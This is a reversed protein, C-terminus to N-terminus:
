KVIKNEINKQSGWGTEKGNKIGDICSFEIKKIENEKCSFLFGLLIIFIWYIRM